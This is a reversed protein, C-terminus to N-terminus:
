NFQKPVTRCANSYLEGLSPKSKSIEPGCPGRRAAAASTLPAGEGVNLEPIM